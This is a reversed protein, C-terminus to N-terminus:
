AEYFVDTLKKFTATGGVQEFFNGGVPERNLGRLKITESPASPENEHSM